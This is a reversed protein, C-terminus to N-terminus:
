RFLGPVGEAAHPTVATPTAGSAGLTPVCPWWRGTAQVVSLAAGGALGASFAAGLLAALPWEAYGGYLLAAGGNIAGLAFFMLASGRRNRVPFRSTACTPNDTSNM